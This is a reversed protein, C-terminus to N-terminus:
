AQQQRLWTSAQEYGLTTAAVEHADFSATPTHTSQLHLWQGRALIECSLAQEPLSWEFQLGGDQTPYIYPASLAHAELVTLLESAIQQAIPTVPDGDMGNVWGTELELAAQIGERALEYSQTTYDATTETM